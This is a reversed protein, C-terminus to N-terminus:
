AGSVDDILVGGRRRALVIALTLTVQGTLAVFVIPSLQGAESGLVVLHALHVTGYAALGVATWPHIRFGRPMRMTSAIAAMIAAVPIWCNAVPIGLAVVQGRWGSFWPRVPEPDSHSEARPGGDISSVDVRSDLAEGAAGGLHAFSGWRAFSACFLVVVAGWIIARHTRRKM